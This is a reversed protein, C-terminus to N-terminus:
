EEQTLLDKIQFVKQPNEKEAFNKRLRFDPVFDALIDLFMTQTSIRDPNYLFSIEGQTNVIAMLTIGINQSFVFMDQISFGTDNPHNHISVVIMKEKNSKQIIKKTEKDGIFLVSNEDGLVKRYIKEAGKEEKNYTIAVEKYHNENRSIRLVNKVQTHFEDNEEKTFYPFNIYPVKQIAAISFWGPIQKEKEFAAFGEELTEDMWKKYEKKVEEYSNM